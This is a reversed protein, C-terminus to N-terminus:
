RLWAYLESNINPSIRHDDCPRWLWVFGGIPLRRLVIFGCHDLRGDAVHGLAKHDVVRTRFQDKVVGRVPGDVVQALFVEARGHRDFLNNCQLGPREAQVGGIHGFECGGEDVLADGTPRGNAAQGIAAADLHRAPRHRGAVKDDRVFVDRVAHAHLVFNAIRGVAIGQGAERVSVREQLLEVGGELPDATAIANSEERHVEVAELLDVVRMTMGDTIQDQFLDGLTQPGLHTLGIDHGPEAAVLEGDNLHRRRVAHRRLHQRRSQDLDQRIRENDVVQRQIKAGADPDRQGILLGAIRGGQHLMGIQREITGLVRALTAKTKEVVAEVTGNAFPAFGFGAHALRELVVAELDVILRDDIDFAPADLRDLRQQTPIVVSM